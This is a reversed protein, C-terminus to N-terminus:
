GIGEKDIENKLTLRHIKANHRVDVPFSKRFFVRRIRSDGGLRAIQELVRSVFADRVGSTKPFADAMPEIVIAPEQNPAEGIGVLASRFVDEMQNVLAEFQDTYLFVGPEVEVREVKRGCFWLRGASDVYGVDAMRHWIRGDEEIKSAATAHPLADYARTVSPGTVLIEGIEGVALVRAESLTTIPFDGAEIIKISVGPLVIGVCTGAGEETKSWTQSLIQGASISTVPLCETAGYPTHVQGNPLLRSMRRLLEPSVPAGAMLVRKLQPLQIRERECYDAIKTWLVPSGFSNTVDNRIIAEVIRAPDVTAPKSPNMEPVITTMGMAPNFLAFIPLMPLDVEGPEIDYHTKILEVQAEFAGHHYMVGKPAGTSGSTFLIAALDSERTPAAQFDSSEVTLQSRFAADNKVLIKQSISKFSSRFVWSVVHALRIGLLVDPRTREVCSRFSKLGMGPDIVVPVAGMRFLAFCLVILAQGPKVMLLVRKGQSVGASELWNCARNVSAELEAFTLEDYELVEGGSTRRPVALARHNPVQLAARTLFRSVNIHSQDPVIRLGHGAISAM